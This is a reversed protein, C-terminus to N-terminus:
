NLHIKDPPTKSAVLNAWLLDQVSEPPPTPADAIEERLNDLFELLGFINTIELQDIPQDDPFSM